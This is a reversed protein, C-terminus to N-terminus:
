ACVWLAHRAAYGRVDLYVRERSRLCAADFSMAIRDRCTTQGDKCLRM